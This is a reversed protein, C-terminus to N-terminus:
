LAEEPAYKFHLTNVVVLYSLSEDNPKRPQLADEWVAGVSSVARRVKLSTRRVANIGRDPGKNGYAVLVEWHEKITGHTGTELFPSGPTVIVAPPTLVSPPYEHLSVSEGAFEARLATLLAEIM